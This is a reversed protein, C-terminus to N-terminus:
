SLFLVVVSILMLLLLLGAILKVKNLTWFRLFFVSLVGLFALSCCCLWRICQQATLKCLSISHKLWDTSLHDDYDNNLLLFKRSSIGHFFRVCTRNAFPFDILVQARCLASSVSLSYFLTLPKGRDGVCTCM